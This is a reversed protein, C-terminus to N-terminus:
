QGPVRVIMWRDGRQRKLVFPTDPANALCVTADEEEEDVEFGDRYEQVDLGKITGHNVMRYQKAFEEVDSEEAQPTHRLVQKWDMVADLDQSDREGALVELYVAVADEPTEARLGAPRAQQSDQPDPASTTSSSQPAPSTRSGDGGSTCGFSVLLAVAVAGSLFASLKM